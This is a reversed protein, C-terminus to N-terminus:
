ELSKKYDMYLRIKVYKEPVNDLFNNWRCALYKNLNLSLIDNLHDLQDKFLPLMNYDKQEYTVKHKVNISNKILEEIDQSIEQSEKIDLLNIQRPLNLNPECIM